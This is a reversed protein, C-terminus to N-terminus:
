IRPQLWKKSNHWGQFYQLTDWVVKFLDFIDQVKCCSINIICCPFLGNNQHCGSSYNDSNKSLAEQHQSCQQLCTRILSNQWHTRFHCREQEGQACTFYNIDIRLSFWALYYDQECIKKSSDKLYFFFKFYMSNLISSSLLQNSLYMNRHFCLDFDYNSPYWFDYWCICSPM